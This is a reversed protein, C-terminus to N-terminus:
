GLVEMKSIIAEVADSLEALKSETQILRWYLDNKDTENSRMGVVFHRQGIAPKLAERSAQVSQRIAELSKKREM